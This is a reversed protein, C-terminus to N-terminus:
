RLDRRPGVGGPLLESSQQDLPDSGWNGLERMARGKLREDGAAAAAHLALRASTRAEEARGTSGMVLAVRVHVEAIAILAADGPLLARAQEAAISARDVQDLVMLLWCRRAQVLAAREPDTSPDILLWASEAHDLATSLHGAYDAAASVRELLNIRDEETLRVSEHGASSLARELQQHTASWDGVRQAADAARLAWSFTDPPSGAQEFHWATEALDVANATSAGRDALM